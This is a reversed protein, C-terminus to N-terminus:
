VSEDDWRFLAVVALCFVVGLLGVVLWHRV